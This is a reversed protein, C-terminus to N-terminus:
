TRRELFHHQLLQLTEQVATMTSELRGLSERIVHLDENEPMQDVTQELRRLRGFCYILCMALVAIALWLAETQTMDSM